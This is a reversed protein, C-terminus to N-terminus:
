TPCTEVEFFDASRIHEDRQENDTNISATQDRRHGLLRGPGGGTVIEGSFETFRGRVKSVMM